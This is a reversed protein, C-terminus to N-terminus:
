KTNFYLVMRIVDLSSQFMDAKRAIYIRLLDSTKLVFCTFKRVTGAKRGGWFWYGPHHMAPVGRTITYGTYGTISCQVCYLTNKRLVPIYYVLVISLNLVIKICSHSLLLKSNRIGPIKPQATM